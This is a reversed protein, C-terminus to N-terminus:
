SFCIKLIKFLSLDKPKGNSYLRYVKNPLYSKLSKLPENEGVRKVELKLTKKDYEVYYNCFDGRLKKVNDSSM